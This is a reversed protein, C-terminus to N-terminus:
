PTRSEPSPPATAPPTPTAPALNDRGIEDVQPDKWPGTVRYNKAGIEGLPKGLVANAAAGMAAGVPGGAVAGVVTLLNGSKPLVQITQDFQQAKLDTTGRIQIEAAPGKIVMDDSRAKGAGFAVNGRLENFALGKSFLDRFDFLIRRPLQTLSLLGLVRGAGPELELLQGNRTDVKLSGDLNALTFEAPSGPWAADIELTGQGGSLRGAIGFGAILKGYDNSEIRSRLRTRQGQGQGVRKWDGEVDIKQGPARLQLQRIAMGDPQRLTRLHAQGLQASGFRLDAIDLELSPVASPDLADDRGADQPPAVALPAEPVAADAPLASSVSTWHVRALEGEIAEQEADPVRIEGALAPGDLQVHLARDGPLVQLRTQPFDSGLLHLHDAQLDVRRLPLSDDGTAARPDAAVGAPAVPLAIPGPNGTKGPVQPVAPVQQSSSRAVSIWDLAALTRTRGTAVLGFDPAPESIESSGLQVRVGTRGNQSRAKVALLQGFAVNIDGGEVPLRTSVTTPLAVDEAKDLPAPLKLTTGVLDSQLHLASGAEKAGAPAKAVDVGITWRSRGELYPALWKMEPTQQLLEAATIPVSLAGEFVKSMDRVEGGARLALQGAQGQRMVAMDEAAFGDENFRAKGHVQELALQYRPDGLSAGALAVEGTITHVPDLADRMPLKLHFDVQSPGAATINDFTEPTIERLPSRRVLELLRRADTASKADVSLYGDKYDDIGATVREIPVGILTGTGDVSFGNGIFAVDANFPEVAPWGPRFGIKGGEIKARAEFRGNHGTFPWEDLDGSIVARGDTLRGGQLGNDLWDVAVKPMRHHVWFKKAVVVPATDIDVAMDIRPRSGDAQFAMGGRASVAYDVGQIRLAPTGVQWGSGARWGAIQGTLTIDHRVGFGSPWDFVFPVKPDLTLAFGQADGQLEGALGRMGPADEVPAFAIGELRGSAQLRTGDRTGALSVNSVGVQPKAALLWRRLGPSLRDSLALAQFLASVQAQEALLTLQRGTGISVGKIQQLADADGAQLQPVDLRWGDGTPRWRLRGQLRELGAQPRRDGERLPEGTALLDRLQLEADIRTVRHDRLQLWTRLVGTGANVAVGLDPAVGAWQALDVAQGGLYAVGTGRHRDVDASVNLPNGGARAWVQAGLHVRAGDVQVRVDVRPLQTSWNLSPAQIALRSDIVQLEGLRELQGLPDASGGGSPLGQVTWAGDDGRLLTLSVGRLRLETFSRGPLLGAYMSVLLEVQGIQVGEGGGVRLGDFQLLPGRRTWQTHIDDFRIQQGARASLWAAVQQPRQEVVPLLQSLVGVLLAVTVLAMAVVYALARRALRLRRRWPTQM